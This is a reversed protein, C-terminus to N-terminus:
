ATGPRCPWPPNGSPNQLPMETWHPLTLADGGLNTAGSGGATKAEKQTRRLSEQLSQLNALLTRLSTAEGLPPPLTLLFPLISSPNPSSPEKSSSWASKGQLDDDVRQCSSASQPDPHNGAPQHNQTSPAASSLCQRLGAAQAKCTGAWSWGQEVCM